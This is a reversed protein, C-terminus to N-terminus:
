GLDQVQMCYHRLLTNQDIPPMTAGTFAYDWLNVGNADSEQDQRNGTGDPMPAWWGAIFWSDWNSADPFASGLGNENNADDLDWFARVALEPFRGNQVLGCAYPVQANEFNVGWGIPQTGPNNPDFWSAMASYVAFGETTTCSEWERNDPSSISTGFSWQQLGNPWSCDGIKQRM